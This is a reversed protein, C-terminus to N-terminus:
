FFVTVLECEEVDYRVVFHMMIKKISVALDVTTNM